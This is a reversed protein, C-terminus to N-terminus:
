GRRLSGDHHEVALVFVNRGEFCGDVFRDEAPSRGETVGDGQDVSRVAEGDRVGLEVGEVAADGGVEGPRADALAVDQGQVAGVRDGVGGHEVPGRAGSRRDGGHVRQGRGLLEGLLEVVGVGAPDDGHGQEEVDGAPGGREHPPM